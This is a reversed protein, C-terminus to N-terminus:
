LGAGAREACVEFAGRGGDAAGVEGDASRHPFLEAEAVAFGDFVADHLHPEEFVIMAHHLDFFGEAIVAVIVGPFVEGVAGGAEGHAEGAEAVGVRNKGEEAVEGLGTTVGDGGLGKEVFLEAGPFFEGIGEGHAPHLVFAGAAHAVFGPGLGVANEFGIQPGM